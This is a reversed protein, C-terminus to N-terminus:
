KLQSHRSAPQLQCFRQYEEFSMDEEEEEQRTTRMPYYGSIRDSNRTSRKSISRKSIRKTDRLVKVDNERVTRITLADGAGANIEAWCGDHVMPEASALQLVRVVLPPRKAIRRPGNSRVEVESSEGPRIALRMPELSYARAEPSTVSVALARSGINTLLLKAVDGLHKLCAFVIVDGPMVLLGSNMTASVGYPEPVVEEDLDEDSLESPSDSEDIEQGANAAERALHDLVAQRLAERRQMQLRAENTM